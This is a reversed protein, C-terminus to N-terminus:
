AAFTVFNYDSKLPSIKIYIPIYFNLIVIPQLWAGQCKDPPKTMGNKEQGVGKM